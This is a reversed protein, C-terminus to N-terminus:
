KRWVRIGCWEMWGDREMGSCTLFFVVDACHWQIM